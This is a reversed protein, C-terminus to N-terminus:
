QGRLVFPGALESAIPNAGAGLELSRSSSYCCRYPALGGAPHTTLARRVVLGRKRCGRESFM